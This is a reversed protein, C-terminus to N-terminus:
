LVNVVTRMVSVAGRASEGSHGIIVQRAARVGVRARAAARARVEQPDDSGAAGAAPGLLAGTAGAL